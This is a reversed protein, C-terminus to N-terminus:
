LGVLEAGTYYHALIEKYDAGDLAMLNAGYQSMGVGHGYGYVTFTFVGDNQTLEFYTSRLSFLGRIEQGTLEVGGISISEVRGSETKRLEGLWESPEGTMDAEPRLYLVTDRFDLATVAASTILNPVNEESEPTEVSELYPVEGWVAGCDETAGFSSSHFVALISEGDYALYQGDTAEVSASIKALNEDFNNGWKERLTQMDAYALCCGSDACIDANEHKPKKKEYLLYSRVAVSQAKMAEEDFAAPLEAAVAGVLYDFLSLTEPQEGLLVTVETERDAGIPEPQKQADEKTPAKGYVACFFIVATLLASVIATKKM